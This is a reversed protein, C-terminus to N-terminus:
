DICSPDPPPGGSAGKKELQTKIGRSSFGYDSLDKIKQMMDVVEQPYRRVNTETRKVPVEFVTEWYRLKTKPVGVIQSVQDITFDVIM